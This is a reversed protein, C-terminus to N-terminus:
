QNPLGPVVLIVEEKDVVVQGPLSGKPKRVFKRPTHTVPVLGSGKLKSYYAAMKAAAEIVEPPFNRGPKWRIVVHSGSVDKAHLWMDNKHAYRMTLEDNSQANKGVRIEFDQVVFVRYPVVVQRTEEKPLFAKLQKLQTAESVTQLQQEIDRIRSELQAIRDQLLTTEIRSNKHKRYCLAANQQANLEEKLPLVVQQQHYFDFLEVQKQKPQILHMNAMILHGRQEWTLGKEQQQKSRIADQYAGQLKKLRAIHGSVIQQKVEQFRYFAVAKSSFFSFAEFINDTELLVEGEPDLKLAFPHKEDQTQCVWFRQPIVTEAPEATSFSAASYEWDNRIRSRFLDAVEDDEVLLVNVLADYWKWILKSSGIQMEFSRNNNHLKVAEIRQNFISEFCPQANSGKLPYSSQFWAFCSQYRQLLQITFSQNNFLRFLVTLEDKSSTYAEEIIAGQLQHQFALGLAQITVLQQHASGPISM